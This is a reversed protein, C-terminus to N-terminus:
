KADKQGSKSTLQWATSTGPKDKTDDQWCHWMSGSRTVCDGVRYAKDELWVGHYQMVPREELAKVRSLLAELEAVGEPNSRGLALALGGIRTESTSQRTESASQRTGLAKVEESLREIIPSLSREVHEKICVAITAPLGGLSAELKAVRSRLPAVLHKFVVNKTVGVIAKRVHGMTAFREDKEAAENAKRAAEQERVERPSRALIAERKEHYDSVHM